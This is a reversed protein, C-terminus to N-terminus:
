LGVGGAVDINQGTISQGAPSALYQILTAIEACTVYRGQPLTSAEPLSMSREVYGPSVMNVTVDFPLLEKALSRMWVFLTEKALAYGPAIKRVKGRSLAPFGLYIISGNSKQLDPLLAKVISVSAFFNTQFVAQLDEISSQLLSKQMYPGVNNIVAEIQINLRKYEQLFSYVGSQTSFEGFLIRTQRGLSEIEKAIQEALKVHNHYHLIVDKGSQALNWGIEKGLHSTAGTILVWSM